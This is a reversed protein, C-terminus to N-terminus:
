EGRGGASSALLVAALDAARLAAERLSVAQAALRARVAHREDWAARVERRVGEATLAPLPLLRGVGVRTLLGEVKPDYSLGVPPVGCAVAYVLAHLRMGVVLDLAGVVAMMERPSLGALARGGMARAAQVCVALDREPHFALAVVEAGIERCAARLGDVLPELFGGDRWPRLAVGIRPAGPVGVLDRVEAAPVPELAFAPDAVVQVPRRVALEQLLRRSDEDRVTILTVRNLVGTALTRLWGRRLPGIGAAYVMTARALVTALGLLGLYYLASRASTVDQILTGGGSIFLDAGAMAPLAGTTRSVGAVGHLSKTQDPAASLVVVHAQPIRARLAGVIAELVAEDGGNGFGYYGSVVIRM